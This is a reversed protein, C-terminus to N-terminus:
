IFYINHGSNGFKIKVNTILEVNHSILLNLLAVNRNPSEILRGMFNERLVNIFTWGKGAGVIGNCWVMVLATLIEM